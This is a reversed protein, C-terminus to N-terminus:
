EHHARPGDVVGHCVSCLLTCDDLGALNHNGNLAPDIHVSNANGGCRQCRGAERAITAKRLRQWAATNRGHAKAKAQSRANAAAVDMKEHWACRNGRSTPAGCKGCSRM